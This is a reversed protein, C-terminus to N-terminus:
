TVHAWVTRHIVMYILSESVSFDDALQSASRTGKAFMRRIRRVASDTLKAKYHVSGRAWNDTSTPASKIHSWAQGRVIQSIMTSRVGFETALIAQTVGGAAYRRRITAVDTASLKAQRSLEGRVPAHRGRRMMDRINEAQSGLRLHDPNCCPPNDCVVHRVCMDAPVDGHAIAYAVRSTTYSQQKLRFRGYGVKDRYGQWEWCDDPERRDVKAWFRSIDKKSLPPIIRHTTAM